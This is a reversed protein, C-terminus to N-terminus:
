LMPKYKKIANALEILTFCSLLILGTSLVLPGAGSIVHILAAVIAVFITAASYVVAIKTFQGKFWFSPKFVEVLYEGNGDTISIVTGDKFLYLRKKREFKFDIPKGYKEYIEKFFTYREEGRLVKKM